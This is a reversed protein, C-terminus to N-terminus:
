EGSRQLEAKVIHYRDIFSMFVMVMIALGAMIGVPEGHVGGYWASMVGFGFPIAYGVDLLSIKKKEEM